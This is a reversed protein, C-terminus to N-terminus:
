FDLEMIKNNKTFLKTIILVSSFNKLCVITSPKKIYLKDTIYYLLKYYISINSINPFKKTM